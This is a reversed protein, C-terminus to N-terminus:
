VNSEGKIMERVKNMNKYYYEKKWRKFVKDENNISLSYRLEINKNENLSEKTGHANSASVLGMERVMEDHTLLFIYSTYNEIDRLDYAVCLYYDLDQYLRIQVLNLSNNIETIISSKVEIYNNYLLIDGRNESASLREGKKLEYNIRKEIRFGYSQPNLLSVSKIFEKESIDKTLGYDKNNNIKNITKMYKIYEKDTINM